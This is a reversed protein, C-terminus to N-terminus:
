KYEGGINKYSGSVERWEDGINAYGATLERYEGGINAYGGVSSGGATINGNEDIVADSDLVMTVRIAYSTDADASTVTDYVHWYYARYNDDDVTRFWYRRASGDTTLLKRLEGDSSGSLPAGLMYPVLDAAENYLEEVSPLFLKTTLGDAGTKVVGVDGTGKVYPIKVEKIASKVGDDFYNYITNNLYAHVDSNEYDNIGRSSSQNGYWTSSEWSLNATTSQVLWTGNCSSDYLSSPLGQHAVTYELVTGNVTLSLVTGVALDGLRTM